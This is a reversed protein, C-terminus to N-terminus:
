CINDSILFFFIIRGIYFEYILINLICFKVMCQIRFMTNDIIDVLVPVFIVCKKNNAETRISLTNM